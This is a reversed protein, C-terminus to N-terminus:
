QPIPCPPPSLPRTLISLRLSFTRYFGKLNRRLIDYRHVETATRKKTSGFFVQTRSLQRPYPVQPQISTVVGGPRLHPSDGFVLLLRVTMKTRRTHEVGYARFNPGPSDDLHLTGKGPPGSRGCELTM